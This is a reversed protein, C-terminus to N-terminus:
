KSSTAAKVGDAWARLAAKDAWDCSETVSREAILGLALGNVTNDSPRAAHACNQMLSDPPTVPRVITQVQSACGGALMSLGAFVVALWGAHSHLSRKNKHAM